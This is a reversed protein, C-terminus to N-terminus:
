SCMARDIINTRAKDYLYEERDGNYYSPMRADKYKKETARLIALIERRNLRFDLGIRAAQKKWQAM